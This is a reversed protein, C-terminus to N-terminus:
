VGLRALPAREDIQTVVVQITPKEAETYMTAHQELREQVGHPYFRPDRQPKPM